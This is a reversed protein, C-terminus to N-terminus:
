GFSGSIRGLLMFARGSRTDSLAVLQADDLRSVERGLMRDYHRLFHHVADRLIDDGRLAETLAEETDRDERLGALGVVTGGRMGAAFRRWLEPRPLDPSLSDMYIGRGALLTIVDQASRILRALEADALAAHLAAIADRDDPGNPFDLGLILDGPDIVKAPSASDLDLHSQATESGTDPATAPSANSQDATTTEARDTDGAASAPSAVPTIDGRLTSAGTADRRMSDVVLRLSDAESRLLTLADSALAAMWILVVPLVAGVATTLQALGSRPAGEPGLLWFGVVLALWLATTIMAIRIAASINM